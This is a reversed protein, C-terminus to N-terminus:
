RRRKAEQKWEKESPLPLPEHDDKVLEMRPNRVKLRHATWCVGCVIRQPVRSLHGTLGKGKFWWWVAAAHLVRHHGCRRCTFRLNLHHAGVDWLDTVAHPSGDVFM